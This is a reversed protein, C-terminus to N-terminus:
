TGWRRCVENWNGMRALLADWAPMPFDPALGRIREFGAELDRMEDPAHRCHDDVCLTGIKTRAVIWVVALWMRTKLGGDLLGENGEPAVPHGLRALLAYGESQAAVMQRLLEHSAARLDCGCLYSVFCMPLVAAAHYLLWDEFDHTWNPRYKGTFVRALLNKDSATPEGHLPAVDLGTAGWRVCEVHDAKRIGATSQFGFLVRRAHGHSELRVALEQARLNNGVLVLLDADIGELQDLAAIQQDQRMVSFAVDFREGQPIGDVVYPHDITTKHQVHHHIVLGRDRITDGWRGRAVVTVANGADCAAHALYSGIVGIGVVLVDM